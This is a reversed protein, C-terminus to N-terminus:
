RLVTKGQFRMICVLHTVVRVCISGDHIERRALTENRVVTCFFLGDLQVIVKCFIYFNDIWRMWEERVGRIVACFVCVAKLGGRIVGYKEIAQYGYVSCTPFYRCYGYPNKKKAWFSHDPSLTKQYLRILWLVPKRPWHLINM